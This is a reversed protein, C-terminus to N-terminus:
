RLVAGNTVIRSVKSLKMDDVATCISDFLDVRTQGELSHLDPLEETINMDDDLRM